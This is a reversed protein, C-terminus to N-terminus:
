KKRRSFFVHLAVFDPKKSFEEFIFHWDANEYDADTGINRIPHVVFSGRSLFLSLSLLDTYIAM